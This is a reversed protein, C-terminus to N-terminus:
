NTPCLPFHEFLILIRLLQLLINLGLAPSKSHPSLTHPWRHAEVYLNWCLEPGSKKIREQIM